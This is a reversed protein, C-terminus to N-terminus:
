EVLDYIYDSIKKSVKKSGFVVLTSQETINTSDENLYLRGVINQQVLKLKEQIKLSVENALYIDPVISELSWSSLNIMELKYHDNFSTLRNTCLQIHNDRLQNSEAIRKKERRYEVGKIVGKIILYSGLLTFILEATFQTLWEANLYENVYQYM